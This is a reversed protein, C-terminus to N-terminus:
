LADLARFDTVITGPVQGTAQEAAAMATLHRPRSTVLTQANVATMGDRLSRRLDNVASAVTHRHPAPLSTAAGPTLWKTEFSATTSM